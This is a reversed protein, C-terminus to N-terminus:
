ALGADSHKCGQALYSRPSAGYHTRFARYFNSYEQFGCRLAVEGPPTALMLLERAMLLRKLLIYRYVGSGVVRSFEHSLHYKSVYFKQALHDLTIEEAYHANIYDLVQSILATEEGQSGAHDARNLFVMLQLLLGQACLEAAYAQGQREWSLRELLRRVQSLQAEPLRLLNSHGPYSRDFCRSLTEQERSFGELYARGIWLVMREYPEDEGEVTVQHLEMPSILLLDGPQPHYIRGEIRYTVRGRLLFYVEYFDHHHVEVAKLKTDQTHFIEFDPRLMVQRPDFPKTRERM